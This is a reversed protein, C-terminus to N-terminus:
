YPKLIIYRKTKLMNKIEKRKKSKLRKNKIMKIIPKSLIRFLKYLGMLIFLIIALPWLVAVLLVYEDRINDKNITVAGFVLSVAFGIMCYTGFYKLFLFYDM